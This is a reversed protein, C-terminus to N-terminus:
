LRKGGNNYKHAIFWVLWTMRLMDRATRSLQPLLNTAAQRARHMLSEFATGRHAHSDFTRIM